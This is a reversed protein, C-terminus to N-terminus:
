IHVREMSIIFRNGFKQDVGVIRNFKTQCSIRCVNMVGLYLLNVKVAKSGQIVLTICIYM